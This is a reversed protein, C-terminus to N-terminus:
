TASRPLIMKWATSFCRAKRHDNGFAAACAADARVPSFRHLDGGRGRSGVSPRRGGGSRHARWPWSKARSRWACRYSETWRRMFKRTDWNRPWRRKPLARRNSSRSRPPFRARARCGGTQSKGTGREGGCGRSQDCEELATVNAQSIKVAAEAHDRDQASVEGKSFLQQMRSCITKIAHWNRARMVWNRTLMFDVRAHAAILSADTQGNTWSYNHNAENVQEELSLVNAKTAALNAELEKPDLVAILDGKKVTAAKM